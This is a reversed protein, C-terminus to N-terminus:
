ERANEEDGKNSGDVLFTLAFESSKIEPKTEVRQYFVDKFLPSEDLKKLFDGLQSPDKIQGEVRCPKDPNLEIRQIVVQPPILGSLAGLVELAPLMEERVDEMLTKRDRLRVLDDMLARQTQITNDALRIKGRNLATVGWGAAFLSLVAVLALAAVRVPASGPRFARPRRVDAGLNVSAATPDKALAAVGLAVEYGAPSEPSKWPLADFAADELGIGRPILEATLADRLETRDSDDGIVLLREVAPLDSREDELYALTEDVFAAVQAAVRADDTEDSASGGVRAYELTGARVICATLRGACRCVVLTPDASPARFANLYGLVAFPDLEVLAIEVRLRDALARLREVDSRDTACIAVPQQGAVAKGTRCWGCALTDAAVPLEIETQIAVIRGLDKGAGAPLCLFRLFMRPPSLAVVMCDGNGDRRHKAIVTELAAESRENLLGASADDTQFPLRGAASVEGEAFTIWQVGDRTLHVSLIVDHNSM